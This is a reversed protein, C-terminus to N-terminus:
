LVATLRMQGVPVIQGRCALGLAQEPVMCCMTDLADLAPVVHLEHGLSVMTLAIHLVTGSLWSCPSSRAHPTPGLSAWHLALVLPQIIGRYRQCRQGVTYMHRSVGGISIM